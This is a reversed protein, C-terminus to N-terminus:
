SDDPRANIPPLDADSRGLSWQYWTCRSHAPFVFEAKYVLGDEEDKVDLTEPRESAACRIEM